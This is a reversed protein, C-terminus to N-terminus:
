AARELVRSTTVESGPGIPKFRYLGWALDPAPSPVDVLDVACDFWGSDPDGRHPLFDYVAAVVYRGGVTLPVPRGEFPSADVCELLDGPDLTRTM